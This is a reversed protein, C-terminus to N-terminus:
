CLDFILMKFRRCSDNQDNHRVLRQQAFANGCLALALSVASLSFHRMM